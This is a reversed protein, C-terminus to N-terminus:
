AFCTGHASCDSRCIIFYTIEKEVCTPIYFIIYVYIHIFNLLDLWTLGRFCAATAAAYKDVRTGRPPVFAALVCLASETQLAVKENM